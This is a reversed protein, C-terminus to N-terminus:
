DLPIGLSRMEHLDKASAPRHTGLLRDGLLLLNFNCRPYRHHMWHHRIMAKAYRTQMLWRMMGRSENLAEQYPRHILPHVFRSLLPPILLPLVSATGAASGLQSALLMSVLLPLWLFWPYSDLPITLGFSTRLALRQEEATMASLLEHREEPCRFATLFDKKFTRGHHIITHSWHIRELFPGLLRLRKTRARMWRSGHGFLRHQLSEGVSAAVYGAVLGLPAQLWWTEM